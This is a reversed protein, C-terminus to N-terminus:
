KDKRRITGDYEQHCKKCLVWWDDPNRTYLHNKNSWQLKVSNNCISCKKDKAKGLTREVWLHKVRYSADNGKWLRHRIGTPRIGDKVNQRFVESYMKRQKKTRKIGRNDPIYKPMRGKHANTMKERYEPNQWLLKQKDGTPMDKVLLGRRRTLIPPNKTM